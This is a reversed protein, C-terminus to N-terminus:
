NKQVFPMIALLQDEIKARAVTTNIFNQIRLFHGDSIGFFKCLRLDTDASIGRKGNLICTIRNAPVGIAVALRNGSIRMPELWETRLYEGISEMDIYRDLCKAGFYKDIYKKLSENKIQKM